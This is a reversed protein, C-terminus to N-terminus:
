KVSSRNIFTMFQYSYPNYCVFHSDQGSKSGLFGMTHPVYIHITDRVSSRCNVVCFLLFLCLFLSPGGQICYNTVLFSLEKVLCTQSLRVLAMCIQKLSTRMHVSTRFVESYHCLVKHTDFLPKVIM